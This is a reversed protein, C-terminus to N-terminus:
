DVRVYRSWQKDVEEKVCGVNLANQYGTVVLEVVKEMGMKKLFAWGRSTGPFGRIQSKWWLGYRTCNGARQKSLKPLKDLHPM